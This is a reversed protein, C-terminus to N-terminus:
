GGERCRPLGGGSGRACQAEHAAHTWNQSRALVDASPLLPCFCLLFTDSLSALASYCMQDNSEPPHHAIRHGSRGTSGRGGNLPAQEGLGLEGTLDGAAVALLLSPLTGESTAGSSPTSAVRSRKQVTM